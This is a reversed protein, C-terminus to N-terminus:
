DYWKRKKLMKNEFKRRMVCYRSHTRRIRENWGHNLMVILIKELDHHDPVKMVFKNYDTSSYNLLEKIEKNSITM